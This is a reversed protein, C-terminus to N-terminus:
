YPQLGLFRELALVHRREEIVFEAALAKVQADRSSQSAEEYFMVARREADLARTMASDLDIIDGAAPIPSMAEPAPRNGWPYAIQPLESVDKYGARALVDGLHKNAYGAMERFFAAADRNQASSVLEASKAYISAAECELKAALVLFSDLNM